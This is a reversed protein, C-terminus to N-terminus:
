SVLPWYDENKLFEYESEISLMTSLQYGADRVANYMLAISERKLDIEPDIKPKHNYDDIVWTDEAGSLGVHAYKYHALWNRLKILRALEQWPQGGWEITNGELQAITEIKSSLRLEDWHILKEQRQILQNAIAELAAACSLVASSGVALYAYPNIDTSPFTKLAYRVSWLLAQESYFHVSFTM